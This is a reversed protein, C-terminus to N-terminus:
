PMKEQIMQLFEVLIDNRPFPKILKLSDSMLKNVASRAKDYGLLGAYGSKSAPVYEDSLDMDDESGRNYDRAIDDIMQYAMGLNLAYTNLAQRSEDDADALICAMDSAAQLLSCYKKLDIYRLTNIKMVKRKNLYDVAQGGIVGYSKTYHSLTRILEMAKNSDKTDAIVEFALTYLADGALIAVTNDYYCNLSPKSRRERVNMVSPLDDHVLSANHVIEIAAAAPLAIDLQKIKKAGSLMEYISILLLPRWRKGGSFVSYSLSEKLEGAFPTKIEVYQKLANEILELRTEFYQQILM